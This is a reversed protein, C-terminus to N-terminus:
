HIELTPFFAPRGDFLWETPLRAIAEPGRYVCMFGCNFPVKSDFDNADSRYSLLVSAREAYEHLAAGSVTGPWGAIFSASGVRGGAGGLPPAPHPRLLLPIAALPSPLPHPFVTSPLPSVPCSLHHPSVPSALHTFLSPLSLLPPHLPPLFPSPVRSLPPLCAIAEEEQVNRDGWLTFPCSLVRERNTYIKRGTFLLSGVAGSIWTETNTKNKPFYHQQTLM